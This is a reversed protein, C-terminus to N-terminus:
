IYEVSATLNSFDLGFEYVKPGNAFVFYISVCVHVELFLSTILHECDSLTEQRNNFM